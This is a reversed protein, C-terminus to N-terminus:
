HTGTESYVLQLLSAKMVTLMTRSWLLLAAMVCVGPM